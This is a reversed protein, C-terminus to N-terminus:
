RPYREAPDPVVSSRFREEVAGFERFNRQAERLTMHNAGSRTEPDDLGDDEWFCAPCIEWGIGELTLYGCCPCAVLTERAGRVDEGPRGMETLCTSLYSNRVGAYEGRLALCLLPDVRPDLVDEVEEATGVENM